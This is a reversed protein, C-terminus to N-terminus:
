YGAVLTEVYLRCLLLYFKYISLPLKKFYSFGRFMRINFVCSKFLKYDNYVGTLNNVNATHTVFTTVIHTKFAGVPYGLRIIYPGRACVALSPPQLLYIVQLPQPKISWKRWGAM